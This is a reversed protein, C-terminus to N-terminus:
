RALSIRAAPYKALLDDYEPVKQLAQELAAVDRLGPRCGPCVRLPLRYIKDRGYEREERERRAFVWIWPSVLLSLLVLLWSPGGRRRVIARECEVVVHVVDDTKAGCGACHNGLPLGGSLLLSEIVVEPSLNYPTLGAALRLDKLSPVKVTRGCDCPFKVGAAGEGV